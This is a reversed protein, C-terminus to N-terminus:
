QPMPETFVFRPWRSVAAPSAPQTLTSVSGRGRPLERRREVVALGVGLQAQSGRGEVDDVPQAVPGGPGPRATGRLAGDAEASGVGMGDELLVDAGGVGRRAGVSRARRLQHRQGCARTVVEHARGGCQTPVQCAGAGGRQAEVVDRVRQAGAPDGHGAAHREHHAVQLPQGGFEVREYPVRVAVVGRAAEGSGGRAGGLAGRALVGLPQGAREGVALRLLRGLGPRAAGVGVPAPEGPLTGGAAHAQGPVGERRHGVRVRGARRVGAGGCEARVLGGACRERVRQQVLVHRPEVILAVAGGEGAVLEDQAVVDDVALQQGGDGAQLHGARGHSPGQGFRGPPADDNRAHRPRAGDDHVVAAPPHLEREGAVVRGGGSRQGEGEQRVAVLNHTWPRAM